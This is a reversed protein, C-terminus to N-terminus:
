STFEDDSTILLIFSIIGFVNLGFFCLIAAALTIKHRKRTISYIGGIISIVLFVLIVLTSVQIFTEENFLNSRTVTTALIIIAPIILFLGAIIPKLSKEQNEDYPAEYILIKSIHDSIEMNIRSGESFLYIFVVPYFGKTPIGLVKVSGFDQNIYM